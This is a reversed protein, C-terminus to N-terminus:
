SSRRGHALAHIRSRIHPDYVKAEPFQELIRQLAVQMNAVNGGHGNVILIRNFDASVM